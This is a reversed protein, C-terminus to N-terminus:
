KLMSAMLALKEQDSLEGKRAREPRAGMRELAAQAESGLRTAVELNQRAVLLNAEAMRLNNKLNKIQDRKNM